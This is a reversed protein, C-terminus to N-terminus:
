WGTIAAIVPKRCREVASIANQMLEIQALLQLRDTALGGTAMAPGVESAMAMLDLGSSFLAGSGRLVIARVNPDADLAAFAPSMERWFDPGMRNGKGPGLLTVEALHDARAISLSVYSPTTM